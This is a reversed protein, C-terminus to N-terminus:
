PRADRPIRRAFTRRHAAHRGREVSAFGASLLRGTLRTSQAGLNLSSELAFGADIRLCGAVDSVTKRLDCGQHTHKPWRAPMGRPAENSRNSRAHRTSTFSTTSSTRLGHTSTTAIVNAAHFTFFALPGSWIRARWRTLCRRM